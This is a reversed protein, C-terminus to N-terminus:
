SKEEETCNQPRLLNGHGHLGSLWLCFVQSGADTEQLGHLLMRGHLCTGGLSRYKHAKM